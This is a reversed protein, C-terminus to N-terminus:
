PWGTCCLSNLPMRTRLSVGTEFFFVLEIKSGESGERGGKGSLYVGSIYSPMYEELNKV